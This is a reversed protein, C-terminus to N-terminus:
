QDTSSVNSIRHISCYYISCNIATLFVRAMLITSNSICQTLSEANRFRSNKNTSYPIQFGPSQFVSYLEFLRSDWYCNSDLIWTGSVQFWYRSYVPVHSSQLASQIKCYSLSDERTPEDLAITQSGRCHTISWPFSTVHLATDPKKPKNTQDNKTELKEYVFIFTITFFLDVM